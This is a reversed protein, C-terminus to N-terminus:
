DHLPLFEFMIWYVFSVFFIQFNVHGGCSFLVLAIASANFVALLQILKPPVFATSYFFSASNKINQFSKAFNLLM